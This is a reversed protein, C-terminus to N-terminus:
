LCGMNGSLFVRGVRSVLGLCLGCMCEKQGQLSLWWLRVEVLDGLKSLPEVVVHCLCFNGM